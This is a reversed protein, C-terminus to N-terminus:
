YVNPVSLYRILMVSLELLEPKLQIPRCLEWWLSVEFGAVLCDSDSEVSFGNARSLPPQHWHSTKIEAIGLFTGMPQYQLVEIGFLAGVSPDTNKLRVGKRFVGPPPCRKVSIRVPQMNRMLLQVDDSARNDGTHAESYSRFM